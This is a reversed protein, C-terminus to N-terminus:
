SEDKIYVTRPDIREVTGDPLARWWACGYLLVDSNIQSLLKEEVNKLEQAAARYAATIPSDPKIDKTM